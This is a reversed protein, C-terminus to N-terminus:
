VVQRKAMQYFLGQKKMLEQYSGEEVLRGEELVLIRDCNVVTSLRHAIVVRTAKLKELSKCIVAQTANDLASTAEDFYLIKPKGIIARAILIRQRQGGSITRSDEDLITHLKMPMKSIDEELDVDRLVQEVQSVSAGPAMITINEYISGAILKGDQLVVGFKKRLERKDLSDIDRGDYYIRGNQAEEFGLLLKMLTSKGSGSSGVIGVYEGPRIHFSIGKLVQEEEGEYSFQLNNVEIEGTLNGPLQRSARAEGEPLTHLLPKSREYLPAVETIKLLASAFELLAASVAGFATTFGIFSGVSLNLSEESLFAYIVLLFLAQAAGNLTQAFLSLRQKKMRLQKLTIYPGLYECVARNEVGAIRIKSIGSMFQYMISSSKSDLEAIHREYKMQGLGLLFIVALFLLMMGLAILSLKGSFQVMRGFYLLSFVATLLFGTYIDALKEFLITVGIARQALDASDYRSLFSEPLQFMRDYVANQVAYRMTSTGRFASINKAVVFSLNGLVCAIVVSCVQVIARTDSLPILRDYLLQNVAPIFLGILIGVLALLWSGIWDCLYTPRFGFKILDWMGMKKAPFPRYVTEGRNELTSAYKEDIKVRSGETLNYAWYRGPGKPLCVVPIKREKTYALIPGSDQRYWNKELQVERCSFHSVRAIGKLDFRRGCSERVTDFSAIPINLKQCLFAAADYLHNGSEVAQGLDSRQFLDLIMWIGRHYTAKQEQSSAYLYVEEKVLNMNYREVMQEEFDAPDFIKIEASHAFDMRIQEKEEANAIERQELVAHDLAVLGFIWDGLQENSWCLTPIKEGPGAQHILLRRGPKEKRYPLLYVLVQGEIVQYFLDTERTLCCQGGQLEVSSM